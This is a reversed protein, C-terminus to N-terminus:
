LRELSFKDFWVHGFVACQPTACTVRRIIILVAGTNEATTFEGLYDQWGSTGQPLTKSQMLAPKKDDGADVVTVFPLGITLLEQTRAAFSLRYRTKPEVLVLQSVVGTSPNSEGSWDIRLSYIGNYPKDTDLAVRLARLDSGIKWGFGPEKLDIESEFSGDTITASQVLRGHSATWVEFAQRFQKAAILAIVLARRDEDSVGSTARFLGLAEVANGHVAFFRALALRSSSTHPQIAEEVASANGGFAAWALAIAQPLLRPDSSAAIRLEVFAEDRRGVRFLLNGLQWRPKAYFQAHRKSEAFAALAGEIDSERDRARGLELWLVYDDPRLSAAREYEKIAESSQDAKALLSARVYHAEANSPSLHVSEDAADLQNSTAAYTSFLASLGERGSNWTGWFCAALGLIVIVLRV